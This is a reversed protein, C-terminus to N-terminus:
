VSMIFIIGESNKHFSNQKKTRKKKKTNKNRSVLMFYNFINSNEWRTKKSRKYNQKAGQIEPCQADKEKQWFIDWYFQIRYQTM